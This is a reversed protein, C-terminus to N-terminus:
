TVLFYLFDLGTKLEFEVQLHPRHASSLVSLSVQRVSPGPVTEPAIDFIPWNNRSASSWSLLLLM